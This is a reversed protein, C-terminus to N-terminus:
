NLALHEILTEIKPIVPYGALSWLKANTEPFNTKLTRDLRKVITPLIELDDRELKRAIMQILQLKSVSDKPVFHRTGSNFLDQEIIGVVLKAFADTTVGNWYHNAYGNITAGVPQNAVWEFLSKKATLEPGIISCRLNMFSPLEGYAKSLGYVDKASRLSTESYLGLQGDFVCDTAIQIVRFEGDARLLHPFESNIRRMEDPSKDKQPIAGICNIVYDDSSLDFRELSAPATYEDRTPVIPNLHKLARAVRHGLMGSGGLVLIKM